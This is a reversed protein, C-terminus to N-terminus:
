GRSLKRNQKEFNPRPDKPSISVIRDTGSEASANVSGIRISRISLDPYLSAVAMRPMRLIRIQTRSHPMVASASM